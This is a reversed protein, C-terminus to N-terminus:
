FFLKEAMKSDIKLANFLNETQEPINLATIHQCNSIVRSNCATLKEIVPKERTVRYNVKVRGYLDANFVEKLPYIQM